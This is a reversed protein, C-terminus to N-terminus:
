AFVDIKTLKPTVSIKKDTEGSSSTKKDGGEEMQKQLLQALQQYLAELQQKLLAQEEKSLGGEAIRELVTSIKEQIDHIQASIDKKSHSKGVENDTSIPNGRMGTDIIM